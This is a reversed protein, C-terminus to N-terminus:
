PPGAKLTRFTVCHPDKEDISLPGRLGLKLVPNLSHPGFGANLNKVHIDERSNLEHKCLNLQRLLGINQFRGKADSGKLISCSIEDLQSITGM